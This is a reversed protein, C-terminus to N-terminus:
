LLQGPLAQKTRLFSRGPSKAQAPARFIYAQDINDVRNVAEIVVRLANYSKGLAVVPHAARHVIAPNVEM